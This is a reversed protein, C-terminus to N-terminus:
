GNSQQGAARLTLSPLFYFLSRQYRPYVRIFFFFAGQEDKKDARIRTIEDEVDAGPNAL